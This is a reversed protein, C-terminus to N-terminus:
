SSVLRASSMPMLQPSSTMLRYSLLTQLVPKLTFGVAAEAALSGGIGASIALTCHQGLDRAFSVHVTAYPPM